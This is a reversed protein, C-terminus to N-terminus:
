CWVCLRDPQVEEMGYGRLLANDLGHANRRIYVSPMKSCYSWGFHDCLQTHTLHASYATARTHRFIHPHVHKNTVKAARVREFLHRPFEYSPRCVGGRLHNYKEFVYEHRPNYLRNLLNVALNHNNCKCRIIRVTRKGTKGDLVMKAGIDDFAVSKTKLDMIEGIRAGTEAILALMCREYLDRGTKIIRQTEAKTLIVEPTCLNLLESRSMTKIDRVLEDKGIWRFFKKICRRYKESTHVTYGSAEVHAMLGNIDGMAVEQFPKPIILGIKYLNSLECSRSGASLNLKVMHADYQLIVDKNAPNIGDAEIIKGTIWRLTSNRRHIDDGGITVDELRRKRQLELLLEKREGASKRRRYTAAAEIMADPSHSSNMAIQVATAHGIKHKDVLVKLKALGEEFNASGM